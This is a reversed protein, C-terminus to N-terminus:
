AIATQLLVFDFGRHVQKSATKDAILIAVVTRALPSFHIGYALAYKTRRGGLTTRRPPIDAARRNQTGQTTHRRVQVYQDTGTTVRQQEQFIVPLKGM